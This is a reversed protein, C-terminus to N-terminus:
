KDELHNLLRNLGLFMWAQVWRIHPIKNLWYRRKQFYYYGSRDQFNEIGWHAIKQAFELGDSTRDHLHSFTLIGQALCHGDIPYLSGPSFKPAGDQEFLQNRYYQLGKEIAPIVVPDDSYRYYDELSELVFGTHYNDIWNHVPDEGYPWSGDEEQTSIVYAAAGRAKELLSEDNVKRGVRALMRAALATVNIVRSLDNPTYSFCLGGHFERITLDNLAFQCAGQVTEILEPSPEMENLDLIAEVAFATHVLSPTQAPVYFARTQYPLNTGWCPGAYGPIIKDFLRKKLLSITENFKPDPKRKNRLVYGSIFLALGKAFCDRRIGMMRRVNLPSIKILHNGTWRPYRTSFPFIRFLPSGLADWPDWGSFDTKECYARLAQESQTIKTVPKM